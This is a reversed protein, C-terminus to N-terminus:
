GFCLNGYVCGSVVFVDKYLLFLGFLGCVLPPLVGEDFYLPTGFFFNFAALLLIGGVECLTYRVFLVSRFLTSYPPM